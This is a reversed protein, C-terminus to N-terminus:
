LGLRITAIGDDIATVMGIPQDLRKMVDANPGVTLANGKKDRVILDAVTGNPGAYAKGELQAGPHIRVKVETRRHRGENNLVISGIVGHKIAKTTFGLTGSPRGQESSDGCLVLKGRNADWGTTVRSLAPLNEAAEFDQELPDLRPEGAPMEKDADVLGAGPKDGFLKKRKADTRCNGKHVLRDSRLHTPLEVEVGLLQRFQWQRITAMDRAAEATCRQASNDASEARLQQLRERIREFEIVKQKQEAELADQQSMIGPLREAKENFSTVEEIAVLHLEPHDDTLGLSRILSALEDEDGETPNEARELLTRYRRWLEGEATERESTQTKRKRKLMEILAM